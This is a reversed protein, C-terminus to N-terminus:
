YSSGEFEKELSCQSNQVTEARKSFSNLFLYMLILKEATIYKLLCLRPSITTRLVEIPLLNLSQCLLYSPLVAQLFSSVRNNLQIWSKLRGENATKTRNTEIRTKELDDKGSESAEIINKKKQEREREIEKM